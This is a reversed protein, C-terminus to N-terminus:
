PLVRAAFYEALSAVLPGMKPNVPVVHPTIGADELAAQCVPGVAAVVVRTNLADVLAVQAGVTAAM